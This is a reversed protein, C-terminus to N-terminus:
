DISNPVYKSSISDTLEITADPRIYYCIKYDNIVKYTQKLMKKERLKVKWTPCLNSLENELTGMWSTALNLTRKFYKTKESVSEWTIQFRLMLLVLM